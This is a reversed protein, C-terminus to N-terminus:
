PQSTHLARAAETMSGTQMVLRFAEIHKLTMRRESMDINYSFGKLFCKIYQAAAHISHKM